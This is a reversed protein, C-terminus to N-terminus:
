LGLNAQIVAAIERAFAEVRSADEGEVMIRVLAETGSHRVLVRGRDSLAARVRALVPQLVPLSELDSRERVPVNVLAQPFTSLVHKLDSLARGQEVMLKAVLLAALLGDGSTGYRLCVIHGSQEGGLVLGNRRMEEVVHRDGVPTRLLRVGQQRLAVELGMNSMVTAVVTEGTLEGKAQLDTALMALVADGDVVAGTEDVLILRDADGDLAVGLQAREAVVREQLREPHLAGCASNINDGNPEVGILSLTAGLSGFAAPAIEFDAGNGCDLVVKFSEPLRTGAMPEAVAALYRRQADELRHVRGVAAGTPRAVSSSAEAMATEIEDERAESLKFGDAAFLKIGNDQFPNHSASIMIGVDAASERTLLAVAPTPVVGALLVDAGMSCIGALLAGEIFDCSRRTDRGVVVRGRNMPGESVRCRLAVVQGLRLANEPTLPEVNAVARIGDTGFLRPM